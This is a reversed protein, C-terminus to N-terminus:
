VLHAALHIPVASLAKSIPCGEKAANAQEEFVEKSIGPVEADCHLDIRTIAFGGETKSLHVAAETRVSVPVFGAKSLNASFAMSFCSAHAAAILEEPNTGGANEFRSSFRYSSQLAGSESSFAGTGEQLNGKWEATSKRIFM